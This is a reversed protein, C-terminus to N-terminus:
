IASIAIADSTSAPTILTAQLDKLRNKLVICTMYIDDLPITLSNLIHQRLELQRAAFFTADVAETRYLTNICGGVRQVFFDCLNAAMMENPTMYLQSPKLPHNNICDRCVPCCTKRFTWRDICGLHFRHSCPLTKIFVDATEHLGELCIACDNEDLAKKTNKNKRKEVNMLKLECKFHQSCLPINSLEHAAGKTCLETPRSKLFACCLRRNQDQNNQTIQDDQTPQSTM